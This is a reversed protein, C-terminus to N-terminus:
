CSAARQSDMLSANEGTAKAAAHASQSDLLEHLAEQRYV